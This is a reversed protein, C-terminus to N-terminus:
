WFKEKGSPSIPMQKFGPPNQRQAPHQVAAGDLSTTSLVRSAAGDPQHTVKFYKGSYKKGLSLQGSAGVMKLM